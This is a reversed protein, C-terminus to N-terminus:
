MEFDVLDTVQIEGYIDTFQFSFMYQIKEDGETVDLFELPVQGGEGVTIPDGEFVLENVEGNDEAMSYYTEYLPIIIEGEALQSAGRAPMGNEDYGESFGVIVWDQTAPTRVLILYGDKDHYRVPIVSRRVQTTNIVDYMAVPQEGIFPLTGDFLSTVTGAEWDISVNQYAGLELLSFMEEDSDNVFIMGRAGALYPIERASLTITYGGMPNNWEMPQIAEASQPVIPGIQIFSSEEETLTSEAEPPEATNGANETEANGTVETTV